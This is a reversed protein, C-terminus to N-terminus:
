WISAVCYVLICLMRYFEICKIYIFVGDISRLGCAGYVVHCASKASQLSWMEVGESRNRWFSEEWDEAFGLWKAFPVFQAVCWFDEGNQGHYFLFLFIKM